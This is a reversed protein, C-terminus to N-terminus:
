KNLGCIFASLCLYLQAVVLTARVINHMRRMCQILAVRRTKFRSRYEEEHEEHYNSRIIPV